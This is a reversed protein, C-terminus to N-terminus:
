QGSPDYPNADEPCYIIRCGSTPMTKDQDVNLVGAISCRVNSYNCSGGVMFYQGDDVVHEVLQDTWEYANGVLNQAGCWSAGEPLADVEMTSPTLGSNNSECCCKSPDWNNGWPYRQMNRGMERSIAHHWQLVIPLYFGMSRAYYHAGPWTLPGAPHQEYGPECTYTGNSKKINCYQSDLDIPEIAGFDDAHANLYQVYQANTVEYKGIWFGHLYSGDVYIKPVWVLKGGDPGDIEQGVHTGKQTWPYQATGEDPGEGGLAGSNTTGHCGCLTLSVALLSVAAIAAIGKRIHM